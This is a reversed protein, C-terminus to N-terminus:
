MLVLGLNLLHRYLSTGEPIRFARQSRRRLHRGLRCRVYHGLARFAGRPYGMGFYNMWGQLHRNLDPILMPIPTGGYRSSTLAHLQRRARALANASPLLNLYRRDRGFRDRDYRFTYGLFDLHTGAVHLDVVRTKDRNITLGLWDALLWEVKGILASTQRRAMVVFDDAYRVLRAGHVPGPGDPAQFRKAFWHLYVNALLPSIVGGQPTGQGPRHVKPPGGDTPEVVPTELFLRILRLVSRDTIRMRLCAMLKDHPISDFYGQLDADYVQGFGAAL